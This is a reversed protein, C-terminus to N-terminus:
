QHLRAAMNFAVSDPITPNQAKIKLSDQLARAGLERNMQGAETELREVEARAVGLPSRRQRALEARLALVENESQRMRALEANFDYHAM